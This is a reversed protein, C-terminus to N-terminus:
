LRRLRLRVCVLRMVDDAELTEYPTAGLSFIEWLLVGYSWVDAACLTLMLVSDCLYVYVEHQIPPRDPEGAGDM